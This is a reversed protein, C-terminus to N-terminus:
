LAVAHCLDAHANRIGVVALAPGSMNALRQWTDLRLEEIFLIIRDGLFVYGALNADLAVVNEELVPGIFFSGFFTEM